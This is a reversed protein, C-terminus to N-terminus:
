TSAPLAVTQLNFFARMGFEGGLERGVGSRKVGGFPLRPDSATMANVFVMGAEIEGALAAARDLDETWLSSGLGYPSDNAAAIAAAEDAVRIVAAVPGFTEERFAPADFPVSGLVTPEYWAGAEEPASAGTLVRAGAAVTAEVIGALEDRLDERAMPGLQTERNLPLGRRLRAAGAAFGAEFEDAVSEVVIFRKSAVCSQGTNQFRATVAVDIAREIDADGLVIFPDSGGLEMVIPKIERGAVSGVQAGAADSGTITVAAIRPDEILRATERGPVVLTKFLGEPAGAWLFVRELALGCGTVNSAHKLAFCNGGAIIPAACRLAQWLPFNWPMIALVVGLPRKAVSVRRGDDTEVPVAAVFEECHEAYYECAWACKQVEALSETVPKGMERTVLRALEDADERLQAAVANLVQAREAPSTRRWEAFRASAAALAAEIEAETSLAFVEIEEGSSPDISSITATTMESV